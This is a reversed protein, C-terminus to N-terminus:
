EMFSAIKNILPKAEVATIQSVKNINYISDTVEGAIVSMKNIESNMKELFAAALSSHQHLDDSVDLLGREEEQDAQALEFACSVGEGKSSVHDSHQIPPRAQAASGLAKAMRDLLLDIEFKLAEDDKFSKTLAGNSQVEKEFERVAAVQSLDVHRMDIPHDKFFFAIEIPEARSLRELARRYEEVTGSVERGTPSGLRAWFLAILLDYDDDVQKNIVDQGDEGIGASISREHCILEFFVRRNRSYIDNWDRIARVEVSREHDVDSPSALFVSIALSQRAM